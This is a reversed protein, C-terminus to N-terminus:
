RAGFPIFIDKLMRGRQSVTWDAVVESVRITTNNWMCASVFRYM